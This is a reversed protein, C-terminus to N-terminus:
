YSRSPGKFALKMENLNTFFVGLLKFIQSTALICACIIALTTISKAITNTKMFAVLQEYKTKTERM